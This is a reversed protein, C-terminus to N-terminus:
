NENKEKELYKRKEKRSPYITILIFEEPTEIFPVVYVYSRINLFVLHQHAYREKNPNEIVEIYNQNILETVIEDFSVARTEILTENKGEEWRFPKNRFYKM